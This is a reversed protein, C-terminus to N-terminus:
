GLIPEMIDMPSKVVVFTIFRFTKLLGKLDKITQFKNLINTEIRDMKRM